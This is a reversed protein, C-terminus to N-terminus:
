PEDLGSAQVRLQRIGEFLRSKVLSEPIDLVEAIEARPLDEVYRLRLVEQQEESLTRVLENLRSRREDQVLRTLHGTLVEHIQSAPPLTQREKWHRKRRHLLTLCQNRATKYLWPRFADPVTKVSLVRCCIEQVADEAEDMRGLYGWCFRVLRERYLRDLLVGADPDSDRLRGVLTLTLDDTQCGSDQGNTPM